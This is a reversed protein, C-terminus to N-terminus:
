DSAPPETAATRDYSTDVDEEDVYREREAYGEFARFDAETAPADTLARPWLRYQRVVNVQAAFLMAQSQLYFWSMLVIVSGFSGYTANASALKHTQFATATTQLVAFSVAAIVGGPLADRFSVPRVTLWRFLTTFLLANLVVALAVGLITAVWGLNLGVSKGSAPIGAILTTLILGLGGVVILRLARLTKPVFGPQDTRAVLYVTDWATQATKAVGLGSYVALVVGFVVVLASGQKPLPAKNILPFNALADNEVHRYESPHGHLVFGMVSALAILLPFISFFAYYTILVALNGSQDDSFKKYVAFPFALWRHARQQDDIRALIGM